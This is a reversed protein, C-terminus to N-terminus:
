TYEIIVFVEYIKYITHPTKFSNELSINKLYKTLIEERM